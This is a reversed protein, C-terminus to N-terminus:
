VCCYARDMIRGMVPWYSVYLDKQRFSALERKIFAKCFATPSTKPLSSM